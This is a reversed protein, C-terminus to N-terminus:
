SKIFDDELSIIRIIEQDFISIYVDRNVMLTLLADVTYLGQHISLKMPIIKPM